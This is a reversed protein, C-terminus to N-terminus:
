FSDLWDTAAQATSLWGSAAELRSSGAQGQRSLPFPL